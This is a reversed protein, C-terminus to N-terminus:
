GGIPPWTGGNNDGSAASADGGDDSGLQFRAMTIRRVAQSVFLEGFYVRGYNPIIITNGDITAEPHQKEAWTM